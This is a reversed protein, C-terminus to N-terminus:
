ATLVMSGNNSPAIQFDQGGQKVVNILDKIYDRIDGQIRVSEYAPSNTQMASLMSSGGGIKQLSSIDGMGLPGSAGTGSKKIIDMGTPSAGPPNYKERAAAATAEKSANIADMASQVKGETETTDILPAGARAELEAQQIAAKQATEGKFVNKVSAATMAMLVKIEEALFNVAGQFALKFTNYILDGTAGFNQFYNMWFAVAGGFAQGIKSLDIGATADIVGMLQPVIESAIGVFFGRIKNGTLGLIDSARGFVGANELLLATQNGLMKRAEDMGGSAFVSLLKAGSKGFVEMAMASRQAPNQIKGIADGITMLQEDANLGQIDGISIGMLAFKNAAEASGSAAEAIMRQMKALVPQVQDAKMGNLDFAMQLEMLKDVAVGTQANLDVLDDGLQLADRLGTAAFTATKMAIAMASLNGITQGISSFMGGGGSQQMASGLQRTSNIAGQIGRQFNAWDLGLSAFIM